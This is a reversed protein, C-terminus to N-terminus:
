SKPDELIAFFEGLYKRVHKKSYKAFYPSLRLWKWSRRKQGLVVPGNGHDGGQYPLLGPLLTGYCEKLGLRDHPTAYPTKVLGAYDFDYPLPILDSTGPVGCVEVNHNNFYYWDTNGIMFQFMAFREGEDTNMLKSGFKQHELISAQTREALDKPHEIFFGFSEDFGKDKGTIDEYKIKVM